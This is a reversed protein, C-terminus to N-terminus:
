KNIWRWRTLHFRCKNMKRYSTGWNLLKEISMTSIVRNNIINRNWYINLRYDDMKWFQYYQVINIRLLHLSNGLHHFRDIKNKLQNSLNSIVIQKSLKHIFNQFDSHHTSTHQYNNELFYDINNIYMLWNDSINSMLYKRFKYICIHILHLFAICVKLEM